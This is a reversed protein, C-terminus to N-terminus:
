IFFEYIVIFRSTVTLSFFLSDADCWSVIEKGYGEWTGCMKETPKFAFVMSAGVIFLLIRKNM